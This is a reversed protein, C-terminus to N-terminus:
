VVFETPVRLRKTNTAWAWAMTGNTSRFDDKLPKFKGWKHSREGSFTRCLGPHIPKIISTFTGSKFSVWSPLTARLCLCACVPLCAPLRCFAEKPECNSPVTMVAPCAHHHASAAGEILLCLSLAWIWGTKGKHRVPSGLEQFFAERKSEPLSGKWKSERPSVRVSVGLLQEWFLELDLPNVAFASFWLLHPFPTFLGFM